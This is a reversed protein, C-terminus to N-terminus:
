CGLKAMHSCLSKYSMRELGTRELSSLSLSKQSAFKENLAETPCVLFFWQDLNLPNALEKDTAAFVCFVYVHASRISEQASVNTKSNWGKKPAIDFRIPSHSKQAWTQLYAASKVEIRLEPKPELDHADWEIRLNHTCNAAKAVIYEALVGRLANSLFDSYAWKWFDSAIITNM